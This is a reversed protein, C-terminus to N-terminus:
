EATRNLISSLQEANKRTLRTTREVASAAQDAHEPDNLEAWQRELEAGQREYDALERQLGAQEREGREDWFTASRDHNEAAQEHRLAAQRHPEPGKTVL